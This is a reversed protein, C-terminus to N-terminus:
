SLDVDPITITHGTESTIRLSIVGGPLAPCRFEGMEDLRATTVFEGAQRVEVLAGVWSEDNGTLVQGTLTYGDALSEVELFVTAGNGRATMKNTEEGRLASSPTLSHPILTAIIESLHPLRRASAHFQPQLQTESNLLAEFLDIEARCSSCLALHATIEEQQTSTNLHYDALADPSPCDYRHLKSKLSYVTRQLAALRASCHPCGALHRMVAEDAEDDLVAFLQEDTLPSFFSCPM